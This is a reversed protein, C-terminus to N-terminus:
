GNVGRNKVNLNTSLCLTDKKSDESFTSVPLLVAYLITISFYFFFRVIM